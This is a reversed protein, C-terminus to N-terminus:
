KRQHCENKNLTYAFRSLYVYEFRVRYVRHASKFRLLIADTQLMAKLCYRVMEKLM